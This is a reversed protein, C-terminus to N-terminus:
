HSSILCRRVTYRSPCTKPLYEPIQRSPSLFGMGGGGWDTDEGINFHIMELVDARALKSPVYSNTRTSTSRAKVFRARYTATPLHPGGLPWM